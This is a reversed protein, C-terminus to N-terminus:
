DNVVNKSLLQRDAALYVVSMGGRGLEKQIEYRDKFVLKTQTIISTQLVAAVTANDAALLSEVERLLEDDDECQQRVFAARLGPDCEVADDFIAKIQQWRGTTM